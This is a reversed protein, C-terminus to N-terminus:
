LILIGLIVFAIWFVFHSLRETLFDEYKKLFIAPAYCTIGTIIWAGMGGGFIILLAKVWWSDKLEESEQKAQKQKEIKEQRKQENEKEIKEYPCKGGQHDHPPYGHHYHYEGTARDYHGGKSDTRGSHAMAYITTLFCLAIIFTVVFFMKCKMIMVGQLFMQEAFDMKTSM